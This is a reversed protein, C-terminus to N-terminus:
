RKKTKFERSHDHAPISVVYSQGDAAVSLKVYHGKCNKETNAIYEDPANNVAGDPRLNKHMQYLAQISKTAKLNAFVDPKCGKTVGNNMIAVTPQITQLLIPNNSSDLGHHTVQYVDVDGVLNKPCVLKYEQNWTLDGADYFRFPGFEILTVVSNANDSGDRDKSRHTACVETNTPADDSAAIFKRRTGLCTMKLMPSNLDKSQKLSLEDGPKVVVRQQCKFEYYAQGPNDPMEDFKGNDYVTGIPLMTALVSAGGYHDGHYHTTILHDVRRLGAVKTVVQAIRDPDRRGPNGSDILVCENQPTVMLTAAGGEVDIWYIDFRGDKADASCLGAMVTTALLIGCALHRM